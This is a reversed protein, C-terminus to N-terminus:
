ETICLDTVKFMPKQANTYFTETNQNCDVKFINVQNEFVETLFDCEIELLKLDSIGMFEIFVYTVDDEFQYGLFNKQAYSPNTKIQFTADFYRELVKKTNTHEKETNLELKLSSYDSAAQNLDDTFLKLTVELAHTKDNYKLSNISAYFPHSFSSITFLLGLVFLFIHM